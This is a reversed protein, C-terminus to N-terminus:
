LGNIEIVVVESGEPATGVGINTVLLVPEGGLAKPYCVNFDAPQGVVAAGDLQILLDRGDATFAYIEGTMPNSALATGRKTVAVGDLIGLDRVQPAPLEGRSFDADSLKYIAGKDPDSMSCSVCWASDKDDVTIGNVYGPCEIRQVADASGAKEDVLADIAEHPVRYIASPVNVIGDPDGNLMDGVYLNGKSDMALGNPQELANFKSAIASGSWLPLRGLVKGSMPDYILVQQRVQDPAVLDSAGPKSVPRGGVVQFATGKPFKGTATRLIDVALTSTLNGILKRKVLEVSNPSTIRAQSVFAAGEVYVLGPPTKYRPHGLVMACNGFVFTEGDLCLEASEPNTCGTVRGVLRAEFPAPASSKTWRPKTTM